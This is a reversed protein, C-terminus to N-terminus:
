VKLSYVYLKKSYIRINLKLEKKKYETCEKKKKYEYLNFKKHVFVM